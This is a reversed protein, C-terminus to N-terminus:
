RTFRMYIEISVDNDVGQNTVVQNISSTLVLTNDTLEEITYDQTQVEGLDVGEITAFDGDITLTNGSRTWTSVSEVDDLSVTQNQTQGVFSFTLDIDYSGSFLLNNPNETIEMTTDMNSGVGDYSTTFDQGQVATVSTGTYEMEVMEWVGLLEGSTSNSDSDDDSCSSFVTLSLVLLVLLKLQKKM